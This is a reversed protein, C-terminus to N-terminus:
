GKNSRRDCIYYKMYLIYPSNCVHFSHIVRYFLETFKNFFSFIGSKALRTICYHEMNEVSFNSGTLMYRLFLKQVCNETKM